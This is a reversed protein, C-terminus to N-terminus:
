IWPCGSEKSGPCLVPLIECNAHHSAFLVLLLFKAIAFMDCTVQVWLVDVADITDGHGQPDSLTMPFLVMPYIM